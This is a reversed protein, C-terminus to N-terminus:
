IPPLSFSFVCRRAACASCEWKKEDMQDEETVNICAGHHWRRPVLLAPLQIFSGTCSRDDVNRCCSHGHCAPFCLSMGEGRLKDLGIDLRVQQMRRVGGM